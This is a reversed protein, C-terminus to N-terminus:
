GMSLVRDPAVVGPWLPGPLSPLSPTSRMGWLELMAPVEGDSQKTDYWSVRKPPRVGRCLHLWHIRCGWSVPCIYIPMEAESWFTTDTGMSTNCNNYFDIRYLVYSFFFFFFEWSYLIEFIRRFLYNNKKTPPPEMLSRNLVSVVSIRIQETLQPQLIYQSSRQLPNLSRGVILTRM